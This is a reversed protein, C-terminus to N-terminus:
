SICHRYGALLWRSDQFHHPQCHAFAIFYSGDYVKQGRYRHEDLCNTWRWCSGCQCHGPSVVGPYHWCPGQVLLQEQKLDFLPKDGASPVYTHNLV